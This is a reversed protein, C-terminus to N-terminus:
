VRAHLKANFTTIATTQSNLFSKFGSVRQSTFIGKEPQTSARKWALVKNDKLSISNRIFTTLVSSCIKHRNEGSAIVIVLM